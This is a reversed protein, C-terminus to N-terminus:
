VSASGERAHGRSKRQVKLEIWLSIGTLVVLIVCFVAFVRLVLSPPPPVIEDTIGAPFAAHLIWARVARPGGSILSTVLGWLLALDCVVVVGLVLRNLWIFARKFFPPM